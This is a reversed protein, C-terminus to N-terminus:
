QTSLIAALSDTTVNDFGFMDPDLPAEHDVIVWQTEKYNIFAQRILNRYNQERNAKLKDPNAVHKGLDFGLMLVIDSTTAALHLAVIEEQREISHVFDGAYLKVGEPRDLNNYVSESVYFNCYTQFNRKFLESAKTQDHCIVNDTQYARWTRWSGWLAGIAKLDDISQTPDLAVTDSLVWSINM